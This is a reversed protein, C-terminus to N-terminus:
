QFSCGRCHHQLLEEEAAAPRLVINQCGAHDVRGLDDLLGCVAREPIFKGLPYLFLGSPPVKRRQRVAFLGFLHDAQGGSVDHALIGAAAAELDLKLELVVLFPSLRHSNGFSQGRELGLLVDLGAGVICALLVGVVEDEGNLSIFGLLGFFGCPDDAGVVHLLVGAGQISGGRVLREDAGTGDGGLGAGLAGKSDVAVAAYAVRKLIKHQAVFDLVAGTLVHDYGVNVEADAGTLALRATSRQDDGAVHAAGCVGGGGKRHVNLGDARGLVKVVQGVDGRLMFGIDGRDGRAPACKIPPVSVHDDTPLFKFKRRQVSVVEVTHVRRLLVHLRSRVALALARMRASSVDQAALAAKHHAVEVLQQALTCRFTQAQVSVVEACTDTHRVGDLFGDGCFLGGYLLRSCHGHVALLATGNGFLFLGDRVLDNRRGLSCGLVGEDTTLSLDRVAALGVHHNGSQGVLLFGLLQDIGPLGYVSQPVIRVGHLLQRCVCQLDGCLAMDSRSSSSNGVRHCPCSITGSKRGM